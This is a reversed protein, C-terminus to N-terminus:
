RCQNIFEHILLVGYPTDKDVIIKRQKLCEEIDLNINEKRLLLYLDILLNITIHTERKFIKDLNEQM